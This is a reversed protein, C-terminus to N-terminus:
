SKYSDIKSKVVGNVRQFRKYREDFFDMEKLDEEEVCNNVKLGKVRVGIKKKFWGNLGPM